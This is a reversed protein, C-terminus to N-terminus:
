TRTVITQERCIASVQDTGQVMKDIQLYAQAALVEETRKQNGARLLKRALLTMVQGNPIVSQVTERHKDVFSNHYALMMYVVSANTIRAGNARYLNVPNNTSINIAVSVVTVIEKCAECFKIRVVREDEPDEPEENYMEVLWGRLEMLARPSLSYFGARSRDFWGEEVMEELIREAEKMTLSSAGGGQGTAEEGRGGERQSGLQDRQSGDGRVRALNVAATGRVACVERRGSDEAGVWNGEFMADIVRKVFAIEDPSHVTALQTLADSTTNVLAWIREREGQQRRSHRIELDLANIRGNIADIYSEFLDPTIDGPLTERDEYVTLISALLPQADAFTLTSRSLFSQLLARHSDNYHLEEEDTSM